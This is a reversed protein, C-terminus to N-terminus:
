EGLHELISEVLRDIETQAASAARGLGYVSTGRVASQSYANRQTLPADLTPLSFDRMVDLVDAALTTRTVRNPLMAAKLSAGTQMRAMILKEIARTSWLDTPSPIVPVLAYDSLAVAALTHAHDVSPPCDLLIFDAQKAQVKLAKRLAATDGQLRTLSAPFPIGQPASAHWRSASEQPDLDCIAVRYGRLSLGAALQMTITTKGSGGKQSLLSLVRAGNM